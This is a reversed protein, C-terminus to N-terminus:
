RAENELQEIKTLLKFKDQAMHTYKRNAGHYDRVKDIRKDLRALSNRAKQLETLKKYYPAPM